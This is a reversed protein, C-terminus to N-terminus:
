TNAGDARSRAWDRADTKRDRYWPGEVRQWGSAGLRAAIRGSSSDPDIPAEIWCAFGLRRLRRRCIACGGTIQGEPDRHREGSTGTHARRLLEALWGADVSLAAAVVRVRELQDEDDDSQTTANPCRFVPHLGYCYRRGDTGTFYRGRNKM